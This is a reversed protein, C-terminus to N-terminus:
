GERGQLIEIGYKLIKIRIKEKADAAADDADYAAAAAADAAYAAAAYAAYAAADDAAAAYAAATAAAYAADDAYAADYAATTAAAAAARTKRCPNSIYNKAAEIAKRPRKDDPYKKEFINIVLEASFVAYQVEQKKNMVRVVLWNCDRYKKEKLLARSVKVSDTEEQNNFWEMGSRCARKKELWGNTLKV